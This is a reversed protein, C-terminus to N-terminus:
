ENDLSNQGSDLRESMERLFSEVDPSFSVTEEPQDGALTRDYYNELQSILGTVQANNEV